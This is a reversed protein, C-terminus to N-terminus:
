VSHHKSKANHAEWVYTKFFTDQFRCSPPIWVKHSPLQTHAGAHVIAVFWRRYTGRYRVSSNSKLPGLPASRFDFHAVSARKPIIM